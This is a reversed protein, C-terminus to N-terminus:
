SYTYSNNGVVSSFVSGLIGNITGDVNSNVTHYRHSAKQTFSLDDKGEVTPLVVNSVGALLGNSM